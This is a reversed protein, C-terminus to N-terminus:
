ETICNRSLGDACLRYGMPVYGTGLLRKMWWSQWQENIHQTGSQGTITARVLLLASLEAMDKVLSESREEPPHEVVELCLAM